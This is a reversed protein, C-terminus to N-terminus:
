RHRRTSTPKGAPSHRRGNSSTRKPAAPPTRVSGAAHGGQPLPGITDLTRSPMFDHNQYLAELDKPDITELNKITHDGGGAKWAADWLHALYRSGDAIVAITDKGFQEWLADDIERPKQDKVKLYADVIDKPSIAEFTKQM